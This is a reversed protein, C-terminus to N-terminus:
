THIERQKENIIRKIKISLRKEEVMDMTIESASIHANQNLIRKVYSTSLMARGKKSKARIKEPNNKSWSRKREKGKDSVDYKRVREKYSYSRKKVSIKDPNNLEWHMVRCSGSCYITGDRKPTFEVSCRPNKCSRKLDKKPKKIHYRTIANCKECCFRQHKVISIFEKGCKPNACKM